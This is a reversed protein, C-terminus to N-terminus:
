KSERYDDLMSKVFKIEYDSLRDSYKDLKRAFIDVSQDREEKTSVNFVNIAEHVTLRNFSSAFPMKLAETAALKVGRMGLIREAEQKDIREGKRM